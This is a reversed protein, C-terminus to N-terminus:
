VKNNPVEGAFGQYFVEDLAAHHLNFWRGVDRWRSQACKHSMPYWEHVADSKHAADSKQAADSKRAADCKKYRARKDLRRCKKQGTVKKKRTENKLAACQKVAHSRYSVCYCHQKGAPLGPQGRFVTLRPQRVSPRVGEPLWRTMSDSLPDFKSLCVVDRFPMYRPTVHSSMM